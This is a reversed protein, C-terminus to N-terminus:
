REGRAGRWFPPLLTEGEGGEKAGEGGCGRWRLAPAPPPPSKTVTKALFHLCFSSCERPPPNQREGRAWSGGGQGLPQSQSAAPCRAQQRQAALVPKRTARVAAPPAGAQAKGRGKTLGQGRLASAPHQAVASLIPEWPPRPRDQSCRTARLPLMETHPLSPSPAPFAAGLKAGLRPCLLALCCWPVLAPSRLRLGGGSRAPPCGQGVGHLTEMAQCLPVLSALAEEEGSPWCRLPLRM